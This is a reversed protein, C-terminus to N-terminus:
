PADRSKPIGYDKIGETQDYNEIDYFVQAQTRELGRQDKLCSVIDWPTPEGEEQNWLIEILINEPPIQYKTVAEEFVQRAKIAGRVDYKKAQQPFTNNYTVVLFSIQKKVPVKKFYEVKELNGLNSFEKQPIQNDIFTDKKTGKEKEEKRKEEKRKLPVPETSTPFQHPVGEGSDIGSIGFPNDPPAPLKSETKKKISQHKSFNCIWIYTQGNVQYIAIIQKKYLSQVWKNVEDPTIDYDYPFIMSKLLAPHGPLRGDDDANSILGMFLLREERTCTGLKEDTWFGPDIMRKRAM